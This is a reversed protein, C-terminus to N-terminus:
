RVLSSKYSQRPESTAEYESPTQQRISSWKLRTLHNVVASRLPTLGESRWALRVTFPPLKEVTPRFAAGPYNRRTICDPVLGLGMGAEILQMLLTIDSVEALSSAALGRRKFINSAQQRYSFDSGVGPAVGIEATIDNLSVKARTTLPHAVPLAVVLPAEFLVRTHIGPEKVATSVIGLDITDTLLAQIQESASMVALKPRLSSFAAEIADVLSHGYLRYVSSICGLQLRGGTAREIYRAAAIGRDLRDLLGRAHEFFEEGAPTLEVGKATRRFLVVQLWSELQRIQNSLPPQSIGLRLAGANISGEEAVALFYRIHRLEIRKREDGPSVSHHAKGDPSGADSASSSLGETTGTASNPSPRQM